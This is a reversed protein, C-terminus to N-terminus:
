QANYGGNSMKAKGDLVGEGRGVTKCFEELAQSRKACVEQMKRQRLSPRINVVLNPNVKKKYQLRHRRGKMHMEKANPDNFWCECLKCSFSIVKGKENKIEEIYDHGVPQCVPMYMKAPKALDPNSQPPPGTPTTTTAQTPPNPAGSSTPKGLKTHLSVVKQHKAGRSHAAYADSSTCTVNCLECTFPGSTGIKLSLEKKKHKQGKLHEKYPHPGACSIKCVECYHLLQPKPPIRLGKFVRAVQQVSPPGVTKIPDNWSSGKAHSSRRIDRNRGMGLLPEGM